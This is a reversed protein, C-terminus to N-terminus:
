NHMWKTKRKLPKSWWFDCIETSFQAKFVCLLYFDIFRWTFSIDICTYICYPQLSNRYIFCVQYYASKVTYCIQQIWGIVRFDAAAFCCNYHYFLSHIAHIDLFLLSDAVHSLKSSCPLTHHYEEPHSFLLTLLILM